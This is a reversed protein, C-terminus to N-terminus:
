RLTLGVTLIIGLRIPLQLGFNIREKYWRVVASLKDIIGQLGDNCEGM